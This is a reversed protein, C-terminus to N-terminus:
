NAQGRRVLWAMMVMFVIMGIMLISIEDHKPDQLRWKGDEFDQVSFDSFQTKLMAREKEMDQEIIHRYTEYEKVIGQTTICRVEERAADREATLRKVEKDRIEHYDEFLRCMKHVQAQTVDAREQQAKCFEEQEWILLDQRKVIQLNKLRANKLLQVREFLAVKEPDQVPFESFHSMLLARKMEMEQEIVYRSLRYEKLFGQATIEQVEKGAANIEETLWKVEEQSKEKYDEFMRHMKRVESESEKQKLDVNQLRMIQQNELIADCQMSKQYRDYSGSIVKRTSMEDCELYEGERTSVTLPSSAQVRKRFENEKTIIQQQRDVIQQNKLLANELLQVMEFLAVKESEVNISERQEKEPLASYTAMFEIEIGVEERLKMLERHKDQQHFHSKEVDRACAKQISVLEEHGQKQVLEERKKKRDSVSRQSSYCMM